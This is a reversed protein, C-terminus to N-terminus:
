TQPRKLQWGMLMALKAMFPDITQEPQCAVWYSMTVSFQNMNLIPLKEDIKSGYLLDKLPGIKVDNLISIVCLAIIEIM